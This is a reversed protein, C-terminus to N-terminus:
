QTVVRIETLGYNTFVITGTHFMGFGAQDIFDNASVSTDGVYCTTLEDLAITFVKDQREPDDTTFAISEGSVSNESDWYVTRTVPYGDAPATSLLDELSLQPAPATQGASDAASAGDQGAASDSSPTPLEGSSSSTDTPPSYDGGTGGPNDINVSARGDSEDSSSRPMVNSVLFGAVFVLVIAGAVVGAKANGTLSSFWGVLSKGGSTAAKVAGDAAALAHEVGPSPTNADAAFSDTSASVVGAGTAEAAAGEPTTYSVHRANPSFAATLVAVIMEGWPLAPLADETARHVTIRAYVFFCALALGGYVVVYAGSSEDDLSLARAGLVL